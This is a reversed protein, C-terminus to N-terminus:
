IWYVCSYMCAAAMMLMCCFNAHSRLDTTGRCADADTREGISSLGRTRTVPVPAWRSLRYWAVDTRISILLMDCGFEVVWEQIQSLALWMGGERSEGSSGGDAAGAHM